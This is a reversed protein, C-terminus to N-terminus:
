TYRDALSYCMRTVRLLVFLVYTNNAPSRIVTYFMDVSNIENM